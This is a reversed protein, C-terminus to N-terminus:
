EDKKPDDGPTPVSWLDASSPLVEGDKPQLDVPPRNKIGAFEDHVFEIEPKQPEPEADEWSEAEPDHEEDELPWDDPSDDEVDPAM